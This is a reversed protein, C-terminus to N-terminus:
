HESVRRSYNGASSSPTSRHTSPQIAETNGVPISAADAELEHGILDPETLFGHRYGTSVAASTTTPRHRSRRLMGVPIAAPTVLTPSRQPKAHAISAAARTTSDRRIRSRASATRWLYRRWRCCECGSRRRTQQSLGVTIRHVAIALSDRILKLRSSGPLGKVPTRIAKATPLLAADTWPLPVHEVAGADTM